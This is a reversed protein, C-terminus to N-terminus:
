EGDRNDIQLADLKELAQFTNMSDVLNDFNLYCIGRSIQTLPDRCVIIKSIKSVQDPIKEQLITLVKEENSLADLNRFMIETSLFDILQISLPVLKPSVKLSSIVSKMAAKVATKAKRERRRASSATIEERSTLSEVIATGTRQFKITNDM